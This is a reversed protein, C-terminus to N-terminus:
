RGVRRRSERGVGQVSRRQRGWAASVDGAVKLVYELRGRGRQLCFGGAAAAGTAEEAAWGGAPPPWSFEGLIPQSSSLTPGSRASVVASHDPPLCIAHTAVTVYIETLCRSHPQRLCAMQASPHLANLPFSLTTGGGREISAPARFEEAPCHSTWGRVARGCPDDSPM